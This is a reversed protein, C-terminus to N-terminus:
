TTFLISYVYSLIIPPDKGTGIPVVEQKGWNYQLLYETESRPGIGYDASFGCPDLKFWVPFKVDIHESSFPIPLEFEACCYIGFCNDALVCSLIDKMSDPIMDVVNLYDPCGTPASPLECQGHNIIDHIELKRLILNFVAKNIEGGLATALDKMSGELSFEENCIPIPIEHGQLVTESLTKFRIDFDILFM